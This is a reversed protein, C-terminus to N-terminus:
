DETPKDNDDEKLPKGKNDESDKKRSGFILDWNNRIKEADENRRYSGKGAERYKTM